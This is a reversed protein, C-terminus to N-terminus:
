EGLQTSDWDPNIKLVAATIAQAVVPPLKGWRMEFEAQPINKGYGKFWPKDGDSLNSISTVTWYAELMRRYPTNDDVVESVSLESSNSAQSWKTEKRSLLGARKIHDEQTAQRVNVTVREADPIDGEFLRFAASVEALTIPTSDITYQKLDM